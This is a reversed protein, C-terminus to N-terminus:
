LGLRLGIFLGSANRATVEPVMGNLVGQDILPARALIALGTLVHTQGLAGTAIVPAQGTIDMVILTHNQTLSGIDVVPAAATIPNGTLAHGQGLAGQDVQPAGSAIESGTLIHTQGLVGNDVVPPQGTVENGTIPAGGTSLSGNDIVPASAIIEDGTLTHTQGITGSDVIPASANVPNGTLTHVQSLTGSDVVPAAGTIPTGTLTHTQTLVGSDIVPAAATIADGTLETASGGSGEVFVAGAAVLSTWNGPHGTVGTGSTLTGNHAILVRLGGTATDLDETANTWNGGTFDGREHGVGFIGVGDTDTTLTYGSPTSGSNYDFWAAVPDAGGEIRFISVSIGEQVGATWELYLDEASNGGSYDWSAFTVAGSKSGFDLLNDVNRSDISDPAAGGLTIVDPTSGDTSSGSKVVIAAVVVADTSDGLSLSAFTHSAKSTTSVSGVYSLSLAM